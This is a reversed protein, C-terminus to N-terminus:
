EFVSRSCRTDELRPEEQASFRLVLVCSTLIDACRYLKNMRTCETGSPPFIPVKLLTVCSSVIKVRTTIYTHMYMCAYVCVCVEVQIAKTHERQRCRECECERRSVRLREREWACGMHVCVVHVRLRRVHVRMFVCLCWLRVCVGYVRVHVRVFMCEEARALLYTSSTTSFLCRRSNESPRPSKERRRGPQHSSVAWLPTSPRACASVFLCDSFSPPPSVSLLFSM